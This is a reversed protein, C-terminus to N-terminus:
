TIAFTSVLKLASREETTLNVICLVRMTWLNFQEALVVKWLVCTRWTSLVSEVKRKDYIQWMSVMEMKIDFFVAKDKIVNRSLIRWQPSNVFVTLDLLTPNFIKYVIKYKEFPLNLIKRRLDAKFDEMINMTSPEFAKKLM